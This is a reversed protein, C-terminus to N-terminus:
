WVIKDVFAGNNKVNSLIQPIYKEITNNQEKLGPAYAFERMFELELEANRSDRLGQVMNNVFRSKFPDLNLNVWCSDYDIGPKGDVMEPFDMDKLVSGMPFPSTKHICYVKLVNSLFGSYKHEPLRALDLYGLSSHWFKSVVEEPRLLGVAKEVTADQLMPIELNAWRQDIVHDPLTLSLQVTQERRELIHRYVHRIRERLAKEDYEIDDKIKVVELPVEKRYRRFTHTITDELLVMIEAVHNRYNDLVIFYNYGVVMYQQASIARKGRTKAYEATKELYAAVVDVLSKGGLARPNIDMSKLLEIQRHSPLGLIKLIPHYVFSDAITLNEDETDVVFDNFMISLDATQEVIRRTPISQAQIFQSMHRIVDPLSFQLKSAGMIQAKGHGHISAMTILDLSTEERRKNLYKSCQSVMNPTVDFFTPSIIEQDPFFIDRLIPINREAYSESYFEYPHQLEDEALPGFEHITKHVGESIPIVDRPFLSEVDIEVPAQALAMEEIETLFRKKM